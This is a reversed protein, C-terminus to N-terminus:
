IHHIKNQHKPPLSAWLPSADKVFPKLTVSKLYSVTIVFFFWYRAYLLTDYNKLQILSFQNIFQPKVQETFFSSILVIPPHM